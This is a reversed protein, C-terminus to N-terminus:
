KALRSLCSLYAQEDPQGGGRQAEWLTMGLCEMMAHEASHPDGYRNVINRYHERIGAPRESGLQEALAIHMGMHLWPNTEGQEPTFDRLLQDEDGLHRQYEPHQEIVQAVMRELPQMAEGAQHKHWTAQFFRRLQERNQGFM